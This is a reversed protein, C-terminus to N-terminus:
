GDRKIHHVRGDVEGVSSKREKRGRQNSGNYVYGLDIRVRLKRGSHVTVFSMEFQVLERSDCHGEWECYGSFRRTSSPALM